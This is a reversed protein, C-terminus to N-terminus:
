SSISKLHIMLYFFFQLMELFVVWRIQKNETELKKKAANEKLQDLEVMKLAMMADFERRFFHNKLM